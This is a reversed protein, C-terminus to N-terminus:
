QNERDAMHTDAPAPADPIVPIMGTVDSQVTPDPVVPVTGDDPVGDSEPADPPAAGYDMDSTGLIPDDDFDNDADPDDGPTVPDDSPVDPTVDPAPAQDPAPTVDTPLIDENPM